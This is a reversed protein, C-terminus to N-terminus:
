LENNLRLKNIITALGGLAVDSEGCHWTAGLELYGVPSLLFSPSSINHVVKAM